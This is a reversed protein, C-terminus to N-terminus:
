IYNNKSKEYEILKKISDIELADNPTLHNKATLRLVEKKIFAKVELQMIQCHTLDRNQLAGRYLYNCAICTPCSSVYPCTACRIDSFDKTQSILGDKIKQLKEGELVLPSLIHCPYSQGDTDFVQFGNGAGCIQLQTQHNNINEAYTNLDHIFQSVLPKDEHTCYYYILKNLQKGYEIIKDKPWEAGEFAVNPHVWAGKELLYIVGDAMQGVSDTNITMQIPQKPWTKIFFDIDINDNGRNSIQANPLGDYSLGLTLSHRHEKLWQKMEENLLTGNTSGFFRYKRNWTGQEVWEILPRIVDFALLTEGGMFAVNLLGDDKLLFPELISQAMELSMDKDCKTHIYCYKCRLNCRYTTLLGVAESIEEFVPEVINM